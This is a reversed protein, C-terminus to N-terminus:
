HRPYAGDVFRLLADLADLADVLRPRRAFGEAGTHCLAEAKM